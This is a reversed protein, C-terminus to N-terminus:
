CEHVGEDEDHMLSIYQEEPLDQIDQTPFYEKIDDDTYDELEVVHEWEQPKYNPPCKRVTITQNDRLGTAWSKNYEISAIVKM